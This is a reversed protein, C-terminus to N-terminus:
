GDLACSSRRLGPEIGAVQSILAQEAGSNSDQRSAVHVGDTRRLTKAVGVRSLMCERFSARGSHIGQAKLPTRVPHAPHYALVAVPLHSGIRRDPRHFVPGAGLESKLSRLTAEIEALRWRARLIEEDGRGTRSTRM